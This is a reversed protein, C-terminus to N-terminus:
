RWTPCSTLSLPPQRDFGGHTTMLRPFHQCCTQLRSRHESLLLACRQSSSLESSSARESPLDLWDVAPSATDAAGRLSALTDCPRVNGFGTARGLGHYNVVPAFFSNLLRVRLRIV